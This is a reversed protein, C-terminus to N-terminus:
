AGRPVAGVDPGTAAPSFAGVAGNSSLDGRRRAATFRSEIVSQFYGTSAETSHGGRRLPYSTLPKYRLFRLHAGRRTTAWLALTAPAKDVHTIVDGVRVSPISSGTVLVGDEHESVEITGVDGAFIQRGEM